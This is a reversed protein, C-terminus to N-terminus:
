KTVEICVHKRVSGWAGADFQQGAIECNDRTQFGEIKEMSSPLNDNGIYILLLVFTTITM